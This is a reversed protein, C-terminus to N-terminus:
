AGQVGAVQGNRGLLGPEPQRFDVPTDQGAAAGRFHDGIQNGHAVRHIVREGALVDVAFGVFGTEAGVVRPALASRPRTQNAEVGYGPVSAVMGPPGRQVIETRPAAPGIPLGIRRDRARRAGKDAPGIGAPALDPM